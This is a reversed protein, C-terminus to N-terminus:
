IGRLIEDFDSNDTILREFLEYGVDTILNNKENMWMKLEEQSFKEEYRCYYELFTYVTQILNVDRAVKANINIGNYYGTWVNYYYTLNAIDPYTGKLFLKKMIYNQGELDSTPENLPIVRDGLEAEAMDHIIIMDLIEKKIYGEVNYEEPLFLAAMLWASFSHESVSEPDYIDHDVWQKRKVDKLGRYKNYVLPAVDFKDSKLYCELDERISDFYMIIKSSAVNQPKTRYIDLYEIAKNIYPIIDFSLHKKKNQIRAQLITLMTVLNNEVFKGNRMNLSDEIRENLEILAKEGMRLDTDMNYTNHAALQFANGFYEITTGRNLANAIDNTIVICLYEDMMNAQKHSILGICIARFLFHNDLNEQVNKNNTKVLMKLKSFESTLFTLVMNALNKYTTKGMWYAANSKQNMNFVAYKETVFTVLTEQLSYNNQLFSTVFQNAMLTLMVQFFSYDESDTYRKIRTVFYYAILFEMFSQHKHALTWMAGSKEKDSFSYTKDFTYKFIRESIDFLQQEDGSYEALAMKEYIESLTISELNLTHFMEKSLLRVLFIDLESYNLGKVTEYVEGASIEYQYMKLVCDIFEMVEVKNNTPIPKFFVSCSGDDGSAVTIVKKIRAKNKILGSDISIIRSAKGLPQILENLVNEVIIDSIQHERVADIFLVPKLDKNEKVYHIYPEIDKNMVDKVQKYVDGPDYILKEYHNVSIYLPIYRSNGDAFKQLMNYFVLQLLMNKGTGPLGRVQIIKQGTELKRIIYAIKNDIDRVLKGHDYIEVSHKFMRNAFERFREYLEETQIREYINYSFKRSLQRIVIAIEEHSISELNLFDITQKREQEKRIGAKGNDERSSEEQGIVKDVDTIHSSKSYIKYEENFWDLIADLASLCINVDQAPISGGTQFHGGYNGYKQITEIKIIINKPFLDERTRLFQKLYVELTANKISNEDKILRNIVVLYRCIGEMIKRAKIVAYDPDCEIIVADFSMNRDTIGMIDAMKDLSNNLKSYDEAM